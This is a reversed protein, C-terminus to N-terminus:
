VHNQVHRLPNSLMIMPRVNVVLVQIVADSVHVGITKYKEVGGPFGPHLALDYGPDVFIPSWIQTSDKGSAELLVVDNHTSIVGWKQSWGDDKKHLIIKSAADNSASAIDIVM